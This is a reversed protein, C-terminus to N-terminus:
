KNQNSNKKNNDKLKAPRYYPNLIDRSCNTCKVYEDEHFDYASYSSMNCYTCEWKNM